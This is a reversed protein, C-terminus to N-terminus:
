GTYGCVGMRPSNVVPLYAEERAHRHSSAHANCFLEADSCLPCMVTAPEKCKKCTWSPPDNRALLRVPACGISGERTGLVRGDLTTTSGFDYEHRFKLSKSRFVEGIKFRMDLEERGVYFGSMHGCCELWVDRLLNDVQKLGADARAEVHIWYRPDGAAEFLLLVLEGPKGQAGHVPVCRELHRSMEARPVEEGCLECKGANISRAM